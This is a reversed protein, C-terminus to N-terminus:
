SSRAKVTVLGINSCSQPSSSLLKRYLGKQCSRLFALPRIGVYPLGPFAHARGTAPRQVALPSRTGAIAIVRCKLGMFHAPITRVWEQFYLLMELIKDNGTMRHM